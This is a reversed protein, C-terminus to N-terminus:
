TILGHEKVIKPLRKVWSKSKKDTILFVRGAQNMRGTRGSRHVLDAATNPVDYLIVNRIASFNLGRALLDTTVLVKLSGEQEEIPKKKKLVINSNPLTVQDEIENEVPKLDNLRRPPNVFIGVKAARVEATDEGTLTVVDHNYDDKLKAAIKSVDKKENIFVICRKEFGEESADRHIAYLAQALAKIKSGQYPQVDANILYFKITKPIKHLSPTTIPIATPFLKEMAKNFEQPITASCFALNTLNPLRKISDCTDDIWSKDMLTDAEDVVLFKTRAFVYQPRSIIRINQISNVKGPTTILVDIRGKLAEVFETHSCGTDWKYSNLGLSKFVDQSSEYIQQVLEHTPVMIVSRIIAKDKIKSWIEVDQEERKLFDILPAMYAWTKGSGTEAAITYTTLEPTMLYQSMIKITAKQIPSPLISSPPKLEDDQSGLSQEKTSELFQEEFRNPSPGIYNSNNLISHKKINNIVAKRVDPLLKLSEFTEIKSILRETHKLDESKLEKLASYEGYGLKEPSKSEKRQPRADLPKRNNGSRVSRNTEKAGRNGKFDRKDDRKFGRKFDGRGGVDNKKFRSAPSQLTKKREYSNM